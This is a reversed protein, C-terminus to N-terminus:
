GFHEKKRKLEKYGLYIAVLGIIWGVITAVILVLDM